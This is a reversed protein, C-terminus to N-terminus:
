AELQRVFHAPTLREGTAHSLWEEWPRTAGPAFVRDQLYDGVKRSTVLADPGEGRLVVTDLTHLLQSAVMEGLLYNHYYVPSTALHIKAAWSHPPRDEAPCTVRQYKEVLRWWLTDLDQEPDEYLAREFHTMVFCWHMFVLLHDRVERRALAAIRDAEAVPVGAYHHLWRADKDLRGMFLAIAETALTHAPERLLYPLDPNHFKDYVAHGFEHLMTGMWRENPRNNCLVRVDGQRDIDMCFAHQCKNEREFLDARQLLDEIPLGIQAFFNRTLEVLDKDAFFRDLDAEGNGPEQFFRNAHHWPRVQEPTMVFRTALEGDLATKYQQWLTQSQQHLDELLAFLRDQELDQLTLSMVYYNAFGLRQAERNRLRVLHLLKAVVTGGVTKSAAWVERRLAVDDSRILIDDIENDSVQRGRVTARYNNYDDEIGIELAILEELVKEDMQHALYHQTLLRHQRRLLPDVISDPSMSKLLAYDDANAYIRSLRGTLEVARERAEGSSATQMEWNALATERALPEVVSLHRAIFQELTADISM